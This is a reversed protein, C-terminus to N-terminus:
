KSLDSAIMQLMLFQDSVYLINFQLSHLFDIMTCYMKALPISM